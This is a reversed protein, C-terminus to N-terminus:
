SRTSLTNLFADIAAEEGLVRERYRRGNQGLRAAETPDNRLNGCADLLQHPAGSAIVRGGDAAGVEAATVGFPDTAAVVPRGTNFYSTLKSPVSMESVGPKENILLLDAAKLAWQFSESDLFDIFDLRTVGHALHQLAKRQNGGGLLVFRIPLDKEDALRAADVVNELGQKAGMNGAHLVITEHDAWGHHERVAAVDPSPSDELHTWNRVVEVQERPVGLVESIYAAFRAHIVVVTNASRLILSEARKMASAVHAGGVQTETVGLSYLDQVWMVVPVRPSILRARIMAIATSFLGPSVLVIVDPNGWRACSAAIGFSVEALIRQVSRSGRAVFHLVRTLAIGNENEHSVWRRRGGSFANAPYHPYSTVVQVHVGRSRLGNALAGVYPANGTVEPPYHLSLILVRKISPM